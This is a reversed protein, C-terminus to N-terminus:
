SDGGQSDAALQKMIDPQEYGGNGNTSTLVDFSACGTTAAALSLLAITIFAKM